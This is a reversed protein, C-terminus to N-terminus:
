CCYYYSYPAVLRKFCNPALLYELFYPPLTFIMYDQEFIVAFVLANSVKFSRQHHHYQSPNLDIDLPYDIQHLHGYDDNVKVILHYSLLLLPILPHAEFSLDFYNMCYYFDLEFNFLHSVPEAALIVLKALKAAV